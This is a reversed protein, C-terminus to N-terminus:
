QSTSFSDRHGGSLRIALGDKPVIVLDSFVLPYSKVSICHIYSEDAHEQEVRHSALPSVLCRTRNLKVTM